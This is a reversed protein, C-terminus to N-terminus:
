VVKLKFYPHDALRQATEEQSIRIYKLFSKETRHGSIKMIDLVPIGAKYMNTCATRRGTHCTILSWKPASATYRKGNKQAPWSIVEKLGVQFAVTKIYENVYQDPIYPLKGNYKTLIDQMRRTLPIIVRIGTKQNHFDIFNGKVSVDIRKYDSIRLATECLVIFCDRAVHVRPDICNAKYLLDVEDTTLYIANSEESFVEFDQYDTNNHKKDRHSKEMFYKLEKIFRGITNVKYNENSLWAVFDSNFTRTIDAFDFTKLPRLTKKEKLYIARDKETYIGQYMNFVRQFGKLKRITGPVFDVAGKSKIEGDKAKIIFDDIYGNLTDSKNEKINHFKAVLSALWDKTMPGTYIRTETEVLDKLGKLKDLFIKDTDNLIRKRLTQRKQDWELPNVHLMSPIILDSSRGAVFRIYIPALDIKKASVFYKFTM